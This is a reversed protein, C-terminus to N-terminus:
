WSIINIKESQAKYIVNGLENEQDVKTDIKNTQESIKKEKINWIDVPDEAKTQISFALFSIIIISLLRNNLLKLNKM